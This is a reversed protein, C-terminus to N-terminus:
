ASSRTRGNDFTSPAAALNDRSARSTGYWGEGPRTPAQTHPSGEKPAARVHRASSCIQGLRGPSYISNNHLMQYNDAGINPGATAYSAAFPEATHHHQM